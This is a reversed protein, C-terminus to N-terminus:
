IEALSLDCQILDNEFLEIADFGAHAAANMKEPLSGSLVMTAISHRMSDGYSPWSPTTNNITNSDVAPDNQLSDVPHRSIKLSWVVASTRRPASSISPWFPAHWTLMVSRPPLLSPRM